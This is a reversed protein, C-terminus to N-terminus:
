SVARAAADIVDAVEQPKSVYVARSGAVETVTAKARTAMQRQAAPPIVRDETSLVYWSRRNKWSAQTVKTGFIAGNPPVQSAALFAMPGSVM